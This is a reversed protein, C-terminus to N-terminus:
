YYAETRRVVSLNSWLLLVTTSRSINVFLANAENELVKKRVYTNFNLHLLGTFYFKHIVAEGGYSLKWSYFKDNQDM